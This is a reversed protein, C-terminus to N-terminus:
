KILMIKQTKAYQQSIIQVYYIGSSYDTADWVVSHEGQGTLGNVLVDVERGRIDFISLKINSENEMVFSINTTPNFPNPYAPLLRIDNPITPISTLSLTNYADGIIMDKSFLLEKNLAYYKDTENDYFEFSLDENGTNHGYVMLTFVLEGTLPFITPSVKGRLEDDSYAYLIDSQDVIINDIDVSASISGNFEYQRYYSDDDNVGDIYSALGGSPYTLDGSNALKLMYGGGPVMNFSPYFGFGDYYTASTTQSKIYDDSSVPSSATAETVGLATQPIYGIWNWNTALSIPSSAPDVPIGEYVMTGGENLRLLYMNKVDINFAPYFGFGDYYTASTTQSKIFDGPAAPLTSFASNIGMDDQVANVSFWNWNSSFNITLEVTGGSLTLAFPDSVNGEVMNTVFEKTEALDLVEDTSSSYYKFSLTEGSTENSYVMMLFAYGGGLFVPVESAVGIGRQESGVFAAVMDGM